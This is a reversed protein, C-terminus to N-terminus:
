DYYEGEKLIKNQSLKKFIIKEILRNIKTIAFDKPVIPTLLMCKIGVKNAGKIDTLFQDGIALVEEKQLNYKKLVKLYGRKLPKCTFSMIPIDLLDGFIKVRKNISNSFIIIQFNMKKLKKILSITKNDLTKSHAPTLTNDLDFLLCKIGEKKLKLYNIDHVSKQYYTPTYIKLM